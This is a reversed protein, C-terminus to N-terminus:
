RDVHMDAFAEVDMAIVSSDKRSYRMISEFKQRNRGSAAYAFGVINPVNAPMPM